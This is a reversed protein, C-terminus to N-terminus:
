TENSSPSALELGLFALALISWLLGHHQRCKYAFVTYGKGVMLRARTTAITLYTSDDTIQGDAKM